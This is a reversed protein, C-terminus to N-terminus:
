LLGTRGGVKKIGGKKAAECLVAYMTVPDKQEVGRVLSSVFRDLRFRGSSPEVQKPRDENHGHFSDPGKKRGSICTKNFALGVVGKVM